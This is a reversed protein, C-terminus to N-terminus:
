QPIDFVLITLWVERARDNNHYMKFRFGTDNKYEVQQKFNRHKAVIGPIQSLVNSLNKNRNFIVIATKVDRWSLYGLLQDITKIFEEEGRWFKCEAIFLNRGQYKIQIDTKGEYNFTEGTALGEYQGNLQVLFHTRIDEEGMKKFAEPSQEMM